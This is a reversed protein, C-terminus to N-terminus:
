IEDVVARVGSISRVVVKRGVQITECKSSSASWIQGMVKIKGKNDISDITEIVVAEAGLIRDANTKEKKNKLVRKSLPITSVILVVSVSLFVIIQITINFGFAAIVATVFAAIAMWISVLAVTMSEIICFVAAIILWIVAWSVTM